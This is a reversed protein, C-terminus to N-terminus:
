IRVLGMSVPLFHSSSVSLLKSQVACSVYDRMSVPVAILDVASKKQPNM